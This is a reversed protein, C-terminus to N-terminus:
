LRRYVLTASFGLAVIGAMAVYEPATVVLQLESGIQSLRWGPSVCVPNQNM